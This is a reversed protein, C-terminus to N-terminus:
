WINDYIVNRYMETLRLSGDSYAHSANFAVELIRLTEYRGFFYQQWNVIGVGGGYTQRFIHYGWFGM